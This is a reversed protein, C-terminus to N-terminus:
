ANVIDKYEMNSYSPSPYSSKLSEKALELITQFVGQSQIVHRVATVLYKGSFFEDFKRNNSEPDFSNSYLQFNITRGATIGTDGPIIAKIVTYNALAIQATRNPVSTEAYIDKAVGSANQKIYDKDKQGSNSFSLKLSSDYMETQKKGLRNTSEGSASYGNLNNKNFNTIKQTRTLPDITILKSSYIGSETAELSDFTKIFEFELVTNLGSAIDANNINAPKHTYTGYPSDAFMSQLSRFYFGDNTEFFLMDAGQRGIPRAYTSLWSIAEFPKLRPIVFDYTGYTSEIFQIKKSKIRLSNQDLLITKIIDSIQQGKFGKSLKIQESMLMEESCFYVTFFESNINGSPKRNGIKYIRFTRIIKSAPDESRTKGYAINIFETGDLKLQEILGVADRLIVYGSCAFAYIDEFFSLEVLLNKLKYVQQGDTIIDVADLSFDQPYILGDKSETVSTNEM